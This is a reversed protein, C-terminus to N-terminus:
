NQERLKAIQYISFVLVLSAVWQLPTLITKNVIFDLLIAIFPFTLELITSIHVPTQALGRYYILLALMGTSLGIIILFGFQSFNPVAGHGFLFVFPASVMLTILFRYFTSIKFDVKGLLMKSFTTSSGWAIAAGLAYMAAIVTGEGTKLNVIGNPFTVFYASVIALLAWKIYRQDFKEKLFISATSIAFIPQLKQILFVVSISLFGVKGLATTFWLTGLLGSLISVLITLWWERKTLRTTRVYKLVFPALIVLGILHEFFIITIPPLSYLHQRILGDFAWLTAAILIFISGTYNKLM